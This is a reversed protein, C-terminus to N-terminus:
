NTVLKIVTPGLLSGFVILGVGASGLVLVIKSYLKRTRGISILSINESALFIYLVSLFTSLLSM